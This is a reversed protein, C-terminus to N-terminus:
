LLFGRRLGCYTNSPTTARPPGQPPARSRQIVAPATDVPSSNDDKAVIVFM